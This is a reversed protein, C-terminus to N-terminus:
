GLRHEGIFVLAQNDENHSMPIVASHVVLTPTSGHERCTKSIQGSTPAPSLMRRSQLKGFLAGDALPHRFEPAPGQELVIVFWGRQDVFGSRLVLNQIPYFCM